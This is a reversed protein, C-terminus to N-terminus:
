AAADAGSVGPMQVAVRDFSPQDFREIAGASSVTVEIDDRAAVGIPQGALEGLAQADFIVKGAV